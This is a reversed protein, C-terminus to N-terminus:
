TKSNISLFSSICHILLANSERLRESVSVFSSAYPKSDEANSRIRDNKLLKGAFCLLILYHLFCSTDFSCLTDEPTKRWGKAKSSIESHGLRLNPM